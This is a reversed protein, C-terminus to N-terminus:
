PSMAEMASRVAPDSGCDGIQEFLATLANEMGASHDVMVQARQEDSAIASLEAFLDRNATALASLSEGMQPCSGMANAAAEAMEGVIKAALAVTERDTREVPTPEPEAARPPGTTAETNEPAPTQPGGCAALAACVALISLRNNSRRARGAIEANRQALM